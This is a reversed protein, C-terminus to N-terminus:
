GKISINRSYEKQSQFQKMWDILKKSGVEELIREFGTFLKIHEEKGEKFNTSKEIEIETPWKISFEQRYYEDSTLRISGFNSSFWVDDRWGEFGVESEIRDFVLKAEPIKSGLNRLNGFGFKFQFKVENRSVPEADLVTRGYADLFSWIPMAISDWYDSIGSGPYVDNFEKVTMKVIMKMEMKEGPTLSDFPRRLYFAAYQAKSFGWSSQGSKISKTFERYAEYGSSGPIMTDVEYDRAEPSVIYEAQNWFGHDVPLNRLDAIVQDPRVTWKLLIYYGGASDKVFDQNIMFDAATGRDSSWSTAKGQSDGPKQGPGWKKLWKGLDKIKAGDYFIGRYLTKPLRTPDVSIKQLLPWVKPDLKKRSMSTWDTVHSMAVELDKPSIGMKALENWVGKTASGKIGESAAYYASLASRVEKWERKMFEALIPLENFDGRHGPFSWYSRQAKKEFDSFERSESVDRCFREFDFTWGSGSLVDSIKRQERDEEWWIVDHGKLKEIRSRLIVRAKKLREREVDKLNLGKISDISWDSKPKKEIDVSLNSLLKPNQRFFDVVRSKELLLWDGYEILNKM